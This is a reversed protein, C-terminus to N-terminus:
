DLREISPENITGDIKFQFSSVNDLSNEFINEFVIGGALAPVGGFIAAYWPINESVKLRMELTLDLDQLLGKDDKIIQGIWRMKAEPTEIKIPNNILARSQSIYFDGEARNIFLKNSIINTDNSINELVANLNFVKLARIFASDPLSATSELDKIRFQIGGEINRLEDIGIWQININTSLYEFDYNILDRLPNNKNNIEYYGRVKYLDKENDYSIYAKESKNYPGINFNKSSININDVTTIKSNRLIYFDLDQFIDDYTQINRGVFRLNLNALDLLDNSEVIDIGKFEFKSDFVDVRIFGSSDIRIEGNLNSGSFYALTEQNMFNIKFFQDIYINNFFDLENIKLNISRLNSNINEQDTILINSVELKELTLFIHFGDNFNLSDIESAFDNGLSFYGNNNSDIYANFNKNEVFYTQNSLDEIFISTKLATGKKKELDTINSIIETKSLDSELMLSVKGQAISMEFIFTEEGKLQFNNEFNVVENLNLLLNSNIRIKNNEILIKGEIDQTPILLNQDPIKGKIFGTISQDLNTYLILNIDKFIDDTNTILESNDFYYYNINRLTNKDSDYFGKSKILVSLKYDKFGNLDILNQEKNIAKDINFNGSYHFKKSGNLNFIDLDIYPVNNFSGKRSRISTSKNDKYIFVDKSSINLENSIIELNNVSFALKNSTNSNSIESLFIINLISLKELQIDQSLITELLDITVSVQGISVLNNKQSDKIIVDDFNFTPNFFSAVSSSNSFEIYFDNSIKNSLSIVRDPKNLVLIYAALSILILFILFFIIYKLTRIFM